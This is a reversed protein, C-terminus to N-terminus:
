EPFLKGLKSIQFLLMRTHQFRSDYTSIATVRTKKYELYLYKHLIGDTNSKQKRATFSSSWDLPQSNSHIDSTEDGGWSTTFRAIIIRIIGKISLEFEGLFTYQNVQQILSSRFISPATAHSITRRRLPCTGPGILLITDYHCTASRKLLFM